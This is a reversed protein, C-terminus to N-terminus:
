LGWELHRMRFSHIPHNLGQPTLPENILYKWRLLLNLISAKSDDRVGRKREGGGGEVGGMCDM